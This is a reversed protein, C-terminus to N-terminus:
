TKRRQSESTLGEGTDSGDGLDLHDGLDAAGNGARTGQVVMQGGIRGVRGDVDIQLFDASGVSGSDNHSIKEATDGDSFFKETLGLRFRTVDGIQDFLLRQGMGVDRKVIPDVTLVFQVRCPVSAQFFQDVANVAPLCGSRHDGYVRFVSFLTHDQVTKEASGFDAPGAATELSKKDVSSHKAAFLEGRAEFFSVASVEHLMTKRESDKMQCHIGRIHIYIDVGGFHFHAECVAPSDKLEQIFADM